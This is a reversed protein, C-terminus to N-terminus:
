RKLFRGSLLKELVADKHARSIPLQHAGIRVTNGDIQDVKDAAVLFSKHTKLFASAPLFDEIAKFTIYSIYKKSKTHIAVYNQLAEVFLVDDTSIKALKNDAKVYFYGDNQKLRQQDMKSMYYTRAKNAARLFREFSVPKVLYDLADLEFGDLAYQPYATTFIVPPPLALSRLFEIGSLKPMQIDLFLLDVNGEQLVTSATLASRYEGEFVLFPTDDIYEKLGKRALPEDDVVVCRINHM